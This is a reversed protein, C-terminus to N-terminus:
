LLDTRSPTLKPEPLSLDFKFTYQTRPLFRHRKQQAHIAVHM